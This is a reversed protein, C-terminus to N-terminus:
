LAVGFGGGCGGRAPSSSDPDGALCTAVTPGVTALMFEFRNRDVTSCRYPLTSLESVNRLQLVCGKGDCPERAPRSSIAALPLMAALPDMGATLMLPM